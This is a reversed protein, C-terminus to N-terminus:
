STANTGGQQKDIWEMVAQLDFRILNGVKKVPIRHKSSPAAHTRVWNVSVGLTKALEHPKLLCNENTPERM